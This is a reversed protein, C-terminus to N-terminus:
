SATFLFDDKNYYNPQRVLPSGAKAPGPWIDAPGLLHDAYDSSTAQPAFHLRLAAPNRDPVPKWLQERHDPRCDRLVVTVTNGGTTTGDLCRGGAANRVQHLGDGDADLFQWHQSDAGTCTALRVSDSDGPTVCLGTRLNVLRLGGPRRTPSPTLTASKTPPGPEGATTAAGTAAPTPPSPDTPRVPSPSPFPVASPVSTASPVPAPSPMPRAAAAVTLVALGLVILGIM